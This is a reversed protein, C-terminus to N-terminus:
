FFIYLYKFFFEETKSLFIGVVVLFSNLFLNDVYSSGRGRERKDGGGGRATSANYSHCM